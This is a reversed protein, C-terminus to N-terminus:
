VEKPLKGTRNLIAREASARVAERLVEPDIGEDLTEADAHIIDLLSQLENVIGDALGPEDLEIRLPNGTTTITVPDAPLTPAALTELSFRLDAILESIESIVKDGPSEIIVPPAAAEVIPAPIPETPSVNVPARPNWFEHYGDDNDEATLSVVTVGGSVIRHIDEIKSKPVWLAQHGEPRWMDLTKECWERLFEADEGGAAISNMLADANAPVPVISFEFLESKIFNYGGRKEDWSWEQPIFGVSTANLFGAKLMKFVNDAFEYVDRAAFDATAKLKTGDPRVNSAKGVPLERSQHAWLVVPNKLFRELDWGDASVVDRYSDETESSITFDIKRSNEAEDMEVITDMSCVILTDEELTTKTKAKRLQAPTILKM